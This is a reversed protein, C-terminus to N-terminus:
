SGGECSPSGVGADGVKEAVSKLERGRMLAFPKDGRVSAPHRSKLERGRMLAFLATSLMPVAM